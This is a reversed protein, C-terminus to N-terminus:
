SLSQIRTKLSYIMKQIEEIDKILDSYDSEKLFDLDLSLIILTELEFSSGTAIDLFRGFDKNTNRGAGEAINAPISISARKIQSIIGYKEDEPFNKVVVYVEKVLKRAKQWVILEKFNHM